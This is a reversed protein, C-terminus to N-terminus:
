YKFHTGNDNGLLSIKVKLQPRKILILHENRFYQDLLVIRFGDYPVQVDGEGDSKDASVVVYEIDVVQYVFYGTKPARAKTM